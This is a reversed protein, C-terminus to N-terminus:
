EYVPVTPITPVVKISYASLRSTKFIDTMEYNAACIDNLVAFFLENIQSVKAENWIKTLTNRTNAPTSFWTDSQNFDLFTMYDPVPVPGSEDVLQTNLITFLLTSIVLNSPALVQDAGFGFQTRTGNREDYSSRQPSPLTNGATDEGCATNTMKQWLVEPIKTRQGPRILAWETHTDKLDLENPDDRLTFDRTFRLKFTDDKTVVYNLGAITIADYFWDNAVPTSEQINQFTLFQSPGETLLQAVAKVSLAKKRAATSRNKVWFYYKTSTIAGDSDRIPVEVYQYDSKYQTQILLDDATDPDFELEDTTPSYARIIVVVGHGATVNLVTLTTGVLTYTGTLQAVGNVYVSIRDLTVGVPVTFAINGTALATDRLVAQQLETWDSWSTEYREIATGNNLTFTGGEIADQVLAVNPATGVFEGLYPYWESNPVLSDDDLQEQTPVEWARWGVGNNAVYAPDIVDNSLLSANTVLMDPDSLPSVQEVRVADKVIVSGLNNAIFLALADTSLTAAVASKAIIRLGFAPVDFTYKTGIAPTFTAGYLYAMSDLGRDNRIMIVESDGSDLEQVEIYTAVDWQDILLGDSDRLQTPITTVSLILQGVKDTHSTVVLELTGDFGSQSTPNSPVGNILKTFDGTVLYESLPRTATNDQQWAGIRMGETIGYDSFNGTELAALGSVTFELNSTYSANFSPHAAATAVGARSWAIPRINWIRDRSYTKAGYVTGDAKTYPDLDADGADLAAQADYESPPVTSEVWEVVDVTAFDALAGWRNLREDITSYILYDSYPVYELNTTDWWVRGVERAGWMRMPDYNANGSVLTSVNYRAPDLKSIVNISSLAAPTHQGLAPHWLPIEEVLEAAVYNFLKIPNFKPTSPGYGTVSVPNIVTDIVQVTTANLQTLVQIWTAGDYRYLAALDTRFFLDGLAPTLPFATGEPAGNVVLKDAVFGLNIVESATATKGYTGVVKAVFHTESNLDDISFWRDEDSSSIQTFNPLASTADFQYKTFQQLTDDVTVRLEPYVKSRSDGYEAVKYAWYEDLRADLFRDNNLFADISANTGKMQILGRWFNFQSRETLDLNEMYQKPSYGLLALAHRTSLEDEFVHDTDYYQAIKDTNSQLNRRAEDGVLYHGGFEPRLTQQAQKRGNLKITAIRAGSFPDYILNEGTSPSAYDNFVFLHEFEDVQAHVSYMPVSAGLQSSGRRRLILLDSTDMKVGLTDFIGPHATVDFLSTDFFPSLLGQEQKLWVRDIFPNLSIGQGPQVGTYVSDIFKEIELQWNRVRGSASDINSANEDDFMWGEDELFRSYGFLFDVVNQLGTINFPLQTSVKGTIDRYQRWERNTHANSLANFTYYEGGTDLTYYEIGLYRANYGEVRFVWNSADSAPVYAGQPSQVSYGIQVATIRLGQLWLDKAFPSRKFRLAYSSEPLADTDNFVRLDDTSVLGGARYGLNVDWGRYAQMAYGQNTDISASRLANSFIQGFGLIQHYPAQSFTIVMGSGDANATVHFSDGIHFPRGEDEILLNTATYGAGVLAAYVTGENAYGIITGDAARLTWSQQHTSTLGNYTITVDVAIPGSLSTLAIPATRATNLVADGHLRFRPHGPMSVDFGDYLIGDVEVWNFGWCSGLFELPSKRFLARAMSYRYEISKTWVTEVPSSEGYLYAESPDPPMFNTVAHVSWPLSSNVYPPLLLERNVDVSLKLTPHATQIDNWMTMTWYRVQDFVVPDVNVTVPATTIVWATGSFELGEAVPVVTNVVLPMAARSWAGASAVWLGNASPAAESVLLILDGALVQVGDIIPLGLPPTIVPAQSYVVLRATLGTLFGGAEIDDPTVAAAYMADWGGPKTSNGLLKWPEINPRATPVVGAVTAQHATLLNFWRAPVTATSIPAVNAPILSSYNWTFADTPTYDPATPDLGNSLAWTNLERHLQASFAGTTGTSVESETFYTRHNPNINEYLRQEVALIIDNLVEAPDMVVWPALPNPEVQWLAGDWVYLSATSHNYWFQGVATAMPAIPTDGIVNFVRFEDSTGTPYLWIEGKYPNAPPITTYSGVAPTYSGDSRQVLLGPSLLRDRFDQSYVYLPSAHGDHHKFLTDGLETDFYETPVHAPTVGLQPLTAPFGTVGSTTDYLVTRVDHDQARISLLYDLLEEVDTPTVVAETSGLYKVINTLYIDVLTNLGTEYERQALDIVSIPTMDRQMLLAALLNQQESWLKIAGGFARDETTGIQNALIGRFHSYLTGEPVEEGSDAAVNHYFMRPVQWAGVGNLDAQPGGFFDYLQEDTPERYVYRTTEFNGIRFTFVDGAVFPTPGATVLADFLGNSYPVGVTLVDYPSPLVANKSGAVEFTTPSIATLKWIQQATFPDSGITVALTGDGTGGYTQDVVTAQNYGAHWITHLDGATDKYFLLTNENEVLGHAFIFDGSENTAKKVRRQLAVDIDATPDEAYFFIPSVLRAHTGDYRYLDFLPAQNFETKIQEYQTGGVDIPGNADFRTNLPLDAHFEIIPRTAQVVKSTDVGLAVLDDGKVWYNTEQWDNTNSITPQATLSWTWAPLGSTFLADSNVTGERVFVRAGPVETAGSFDDARAWTGASVVYIGNESSTGQNKILVRDGAALQVGDISQYVDLSNVATIKGKTGSSGSFSVTYSSSIFPATITFTDGAQFSEYGLPLGDGDLVMDRVINFNLLAGTPSNSAIFSVNYVDTSWPGPFPAGADAPVPLTFNQNQEGPLIGPLLLCSVTFDTPSTFTVTWTQADFGTGTLVLNSDAPATAVRVNVKDLDDVSPPAITYYEPANTPNWAMDAPTAIADAIWFYNFFNTFKDFDIPPAYNNGQSFLWDSQEEPVGLVGAKRILDQPTFSFTESGVKFSFVPILANVDREVTQQPIKPTKDDPSSPKRGVYGYMPVAEDKTLFRNFLNDVLSTLMPNRLEKPVLNMMDQYPLTYDQTAM